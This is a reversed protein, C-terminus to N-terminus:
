GTLILTVVELVSGQVRIFAAETLMRRVGNKEVTLTIEVLSGDVADEPLIYSGRWTNSECEDAPTTLPVMLMDEGVSFSAWAYEAFGSSKVEFQIMAGQRVAVPFSDAPLIQGSDNAAIALVRLEKVELVSAELKVSYIKPTKTQDNTTLLARVIFENGSPLSIWEGDDITEWSEGGDTSIYFTINTEEPEATVATMRVTDFSDETYVAASRYEASSAYRFTLDLDSKSLVENKIMSKSIDDFMWYALEGETNLTVYEDEGPKMSVAILGEVEALCEDDIRLAGTGEAWMYYNVANGQAVIFCNEDKASISHVGTLGTLQKYPHLLYSRTADDYLYYYVGNDAAYLFDKTGPVVTVAEPKLINTDFSLELMVSGAVEKYISFVGKNDNSKELLIARNEVSWASLALPESLGEITLESSTQMTEAIYKYLYLAASDMAWICAEDDRCAAGLYTHEGPISLTENKIMTGAADDYAYVEVGNETVVATEWGEERVDLMSAVSQRPLLVCGGATDIEATTHVSDIKSHDDFSDNLLEVGLVSNAPILLLLLGLMCLLRTHM